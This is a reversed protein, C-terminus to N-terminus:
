ETTLPARFRRRIEEREQPPLSKWERLKKRINQREQPPLNQLQDFRKRYMRREEPPLDKWQYMRHRLLNRKEPPLSKWKEIKRNLRERETPSLNNYNRESPSRGRDAILNPLVMSGSYEQEGQIDENVKSQASSFLGIVIVAGFIVVIIGQIFANFIRRM